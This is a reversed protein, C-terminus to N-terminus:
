PNPWAALTATLDIHDSGRVVHLTVKDGPSKNHDIYNILDDSSTVQQSDAGIIVDGGTPTLLPNSPTVAAKLGAQDAPGGSDVSIVYAGSNVTLGLTKALDATVTITGVGLKPHVITKGALM